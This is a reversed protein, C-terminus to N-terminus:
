KTKDVGLYDTKSIRYNGDVLKVTMKCTEEEEVGGDINVNNYTVLYEIEGNTESIRELNVNTVDWGTAGGARVYLYGDIEIFRISLVNELVDGTFIESYEKKVDSYLVTRKEYVDDNIFTSVIPREREYEFYDNYQTERIKESGKEFLDKAIEDVKSESIKNTAEVNTKEENAIKNNNTNSNDKKVFGLYYVVGLAVVLAVIILLFVVTSLRVKIEKNEGM